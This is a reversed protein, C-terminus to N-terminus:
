VLAGGLMFTSVAGRRRMMKLIKESSSKGERVRVTLVARYFFRTDTQVHAPFREGKAMIPARSGHFPGYVAYMNKQSSRVFVYLDTPPMGTQLMHTKEEGSGLVCKEEVSVPNITKKMDNLRRGPACLYGGVLGENWTQENAHFVYASNGDIRIDHPM